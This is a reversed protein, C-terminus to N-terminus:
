YLRPLYSWGSGITPTFTINNAVSGADGNNTLTFNFTYATGDIVVQNLPAVSIDVDPTLPDMSATATANQPSGCGNLVDVRVSNTWTAPVSPDLGNAVTEPNTFPNDNTDFNGNQVVRFKITVQQNNDLGQAAPTMTFTPVNATGGVTMGIIGTGAGPTLTPTFSTDVIFNSTATSPLTNTVVINNAFAGVNKIVLTIEGRGGPLTTFSQTIAGAGGFNGNMELAATDSNKQPTTLTATAASCGWRTSATNTTNLCTNGLTQRLRSLKHM